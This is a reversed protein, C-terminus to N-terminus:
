WHTLAIFVSTAISAPFLTETPSFFFARRFVRYHGYFIYIHIFQFFIRFIEISNEVNLIGRQLKQPGKMYITIIITPLLCLRMASSMQLDGGWHWRRGVLPLLSARTPSSAGLACPPRGWVMCVACTMPVSSPPQASPGSTLEWSPHASHSRRKLHPPKRVGLASCSGEERGYCWHGPKSQLDPWSQATCGGQWFAARWHVLLQVVPQETPSQAEKSVRLLQRERRLRIFLATILLVNHQKHFYLICNISKNNSNNIAVIQRKKEGWFDIECVIYLASFLQYRVIHCFLQLQKKLFLLLIFSLCSKSQNQCNLLLM